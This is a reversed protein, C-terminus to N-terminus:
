GLMIEHVRICVLDAIGIVGDCDLDRPDSGDAAVTTGFADRVDALTDASAPSSLALSFSAPVLIMSSTISRFRFM